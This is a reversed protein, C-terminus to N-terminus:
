IKLKKEFSHRVVDFMASLLRFYRSFVFLLVSTLVYLLFLSIIGWKVNILLKDM